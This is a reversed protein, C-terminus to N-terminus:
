TRCSNINFSRSPIQDAFQKLEELSVEFKEMKREKQSLKKLVKIIGYPNPNDLAFLSGILIRVQILHKSSM